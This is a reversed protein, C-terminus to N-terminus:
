LFDKIVKLLEADSVEKMIQTGGSNIGRDRSQAGSRIIGAPMTWLQRLSV